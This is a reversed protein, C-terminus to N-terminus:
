CWSSHFFTKGAQVSARSHRHPISSIGHLRLRYFPSCVQLSYSLALGFSYGLGGTAVWQTVYLGTNGNQFRPQLKSSVELTLVLAPQLMLM